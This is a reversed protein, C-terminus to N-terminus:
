GDEMEEINKIIEALEKAEISSLLEETNLIETENVTKKVRKETIDLLNSMKKVYKSLKLEIPTTVKKVHRSKFTINDNKNVIVHTAFELIDDLSKDVEHIFEMPADWKENIMRMIKLPSFTDVRRVKLIKIPNSVTITVARVKRKYHISGGQGFQQPQVVIVTITNGLGLTVLPGALGATVFGGM